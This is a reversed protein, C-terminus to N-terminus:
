MKLYNRKYGNHEYSHSSLEAVCEDIDSMCESMCKVDRKVKDFKIDKSLLTQTLLNKSMLCKEYDLIIKKFTEYGYFECMAYLSLGYANEIDIISVSLHYLDRLAMLFNVKDHNFAAEYADSYSKDFLAQEEANLSIYDRIANTYM